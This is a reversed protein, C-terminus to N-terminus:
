PRGGQGPASPFEEGEVIVEYGSLSPRLQDEGDAVQLVSVDPIAAVDTTGVRFNIEGPDDLIVVVRSSGPVHEYFVEGGQSSTFSLDAGGTIEFVASGEVGNPSLMTVSLNGPGKPGDPGTSDCAWVLLPVWGLLAVGRIKNGVRM